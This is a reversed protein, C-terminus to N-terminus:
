RFAGLIRLMAEHGQSAIALCVFHMAVVSLVVATISEGVAVPLDRGVRGALYMRASYGGFTGILVGIAGLIVGGALPELFSSAVLAGVLSGFVLRALLGVPSKRSPTNPRTDGYYEGLALLTFILVSVITATWANFGTVPLRAFWMFWCLVAMATFTRMGTAVGLLIIWLM